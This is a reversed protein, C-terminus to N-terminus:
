CIEKIGRAGDTGTGTGSSTGSMPIERSKRDWRMEGIRKENETLRKQALDWKLTTLPTKLCNLLVGAHERLGYVREEVAHCPTM